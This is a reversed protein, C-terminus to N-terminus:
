YVLHITGKIRSHKHAPDIVRFDVDASYYYIASELLKGNADRGDWNIYISNIDDSAYTYVEKGWRNFVRLQVREVFRACRSVDTFACPSAPEDGPHYFSSFVDNCGDGNPTFVNPLEYYPCNDNCAPDSKDSEHGQGDVATVQYCRAFSPLGHETYFTDRVGVAISTYEGTLEDAAYINYSVVDKRCSDARNPSWFVTSSFENQGCNSALVYSPCDALVVFAHPKCPAQDNQPYLSFVQSRNEQLAIAPNGYTGRVTVAYSYFRDPEVDNDVYTFDNELVNVSDILKLADPSLGRYVLHWPKVLPRTSWPVSDRWALQISSAGPVADLRVASAVASTDVPIFASQPSLRSYLVIRYNYVSDATNATEDVFTTDRVQGLPTIRTEGSFGAARYVAYEYPEPFQTKNIDFPSRWSVRISGRASTKEVTVHTIVPADAGIPGVCAEASPRSKAENAGGFVAVLRYCYLAGPALQTGFNTDTFTTEGADVEGVLIYGSNRPIDRDCLGPTFGNSGVRRWIQIRDANACRYDEWALLAHRGALDLSQHKWVPAPAVVQINWTKFTVLRTGHPPDDTIKFVVQYAKQRVHDCTTNWVLNLAAPPNSPIFAPPYPTYSAPSKDAPLELIESVAEIRVPKHEPDTGTIRAEIRTGAEVCIANPFELFDPRINECDEVIIQMDRTTASLLTVIGTVPHRRWELVRFAINYEGVMGPANWTILGTVPDIAFAPPGTGAENGTAYDAYFAADDPSRYGPVAILGYGAPTALEYTISDGEADFPAPAHSFINGSCARDVPAVHLDPFRNCAFAPDTNIAIFSVYPVDGANPINLVGASRDREYYAIRYVGSAAYTHTVTFTAVSVEPGLDPRPTAATQPIIITNGDGFQVHGDDLYYGGFPTQSNTNLYATVTIRFTLPSGCVPEVTIDATRLHTARAPITYVIACAVSM